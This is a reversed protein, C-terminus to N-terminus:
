VYFLDKLETRALRTDVTNKGMDDYNNKALIEIKELFHEFLMIMKDTRIYKFFFNIVSKTHLAGVM